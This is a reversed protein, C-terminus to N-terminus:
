GPPEIVTLSRREIDKHHLLAMVRRVDKPEVIILGVTPQNGSAKRLELEFPFGPESARMISRLKALKDKRQLGHIELTIRETEAHRVPEPTTSPEREPHRDAQASFLSSRRSSAPLTMDVAAAPSASKTLGVATAVVQEAQQVATQAATWRRYGRPCKFDVNCWEVFSEDGPGFLTLGPSAGDTTLRAAVAASESDFVMKAGRKGILELDSIEGFRTFLGRWQGEQLAREAFAVVTRRQLEYSLRSGNPGLPHDFERVGRVAVLRDGRFVAQWAIPATPDDASDADPAVATFGLALRRSEDQNMSRPMVLTTDALVQALRQPWPLRPWRAALGALKARLRAPVTPRGRADALDFHVLIRDDGVPETWVARWGPVAALGTADVPHGQRIRISPARTPNFVRDQGDVRVTTGKPEGLVPTWEESRIELSANRRGDFWIELRGHGHRWDKLWVGRIRHRAQASVSATALLALCACRYRFMRILLSRGTPAFARVARSQDVARLMLRRPQAQLWSAEVDVLLGLM